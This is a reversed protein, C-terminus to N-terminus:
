QVLARQGDGATEGKTPSGQEPGTVMPQSVGFESPDLVGDEVWTYRGALVQQSFAYDEADDNRWLAYFLADARRRAQRAFLDALEYATTANQPQDQAIMQARVVAASVAFLEAGIDVIRGLFAQKKELKGQWRSMGYFTSRALKRSSREVYRLHQALVGYEDYSQPNQGKGVALQPLWKAYFKGAQVATKAKDKLPVDEIIDGAVSLHQDVAERAILLKMIESSGEFIRNIRMDRLMQEAPIPREGRAQLSAATEFGRGGRIQVLDDCVKWGMESGYLKAIAAEIRIDNREEDALASSLEVVAELGFAQAALFAIKQGVAEHQGVPVGWQVRENSWERAIKLAYKANAACIAPLSLRGTNLTALAIKLGMGERGIVNAAPVSVNSFRTVGNEIGRLGMFQNRHEVTIGPDHAEVIFATIGGRHGESKPVAAMVVLIDAIVGNTTWLKLGELTYSSGDASPTAITGLRAPDSGVDPETLLFASVEGAALRPLYAKKQEPTGFMKLPQPVGISQHASLLTSIASHWSGAVALARTYYVTSLGLGGYEEDIKMGFAGIEALGKITQESIKADREIQLPDVEELLFSELKAIFAEGRRKDEATPRPHPAILDLRFNGLYLEKGFSPLKWETERAAEAVQRAQKESVHTTTTM